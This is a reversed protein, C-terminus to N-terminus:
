KAYKKIIVKCAQNLMDFVQEYAQINKSYPDPVQRNQNPFLENLIFDVKKLHEPNTTLRTINNYNEADMVYIKDFFIFDTKPDFPRSKQHSIDIGNQQAVNQSNINPAEGEHWNITGASDIHWLKNIKLNNVYNQLIGEALPSRCINGMCVMLVKM